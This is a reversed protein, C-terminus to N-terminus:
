YEDSLATDGAEGQNNRPSFPLGSRKPWGLLQILEEEPACDLRERPIGDTNPEKLWFKATSSGNVVSAQARRGQLSKWSPIKVSAWSIEFIAALWECVGDTEGVIM